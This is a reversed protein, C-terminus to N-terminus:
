RNYERQIFGQRFEDFSVKMGFRGSGLGYMNQFETYVVRELVKDALQRAIPDDSM